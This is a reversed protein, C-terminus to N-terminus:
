KPWGVWAYQWAVQVNQYNGGFRVYSGRSYAFKFSQHKTVPVSLTAGVRSSAQYTNPNTIGGLTTTGGFWFNGDLSAWFRPRGLSRSLHGEFSGIPAETQPKPRPTAFFASNTTYLWAGLYADLVWKNWRRSYGLEPKFAWRNIGWNVLKTPNYQGTPAVVKISAGLLTKQKWKSFKEIPMAPGGLLNVSFRVNFDFLGSRYVSQENGFVSGQFTGVAYPLSATVNASRGFFSLSHYYSFIPVHYKGTAGSVPVSGNLNIGGDYFSWTLIVANGHIPTILYARPVLEQAPLWVSSAAILLALIPFVHPRWPMSRVFRRV